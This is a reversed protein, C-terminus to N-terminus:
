LQQGKAERSCALLLTYRGVVALGLEVLALADAEVPAGGLEEVDVQLHGLLQLLLRLFPTTTAAAKPETSLSTILSVAVFLSPIAHSLSMACMYFRIKKGQQRPRQRRRFQVIILSGLAYTSSGFRCMSARPAKHSSVFRARNSLLGASQIVHM